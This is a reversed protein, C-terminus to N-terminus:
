DFTSNLKAETNIVRVDEDCMFILARETKRARGIGIHHLRSEYRLTVTGSTDVIGHRLKTAPAISRGDLRRVGEDPSLRSGRAAAGKTTIRSSSTSGTNFSM